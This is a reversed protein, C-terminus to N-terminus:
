KTNHVTSSPTVLAQMLSVMGGHLHFFVVSAPYFPYCIGLLDRKGFSLKPYYFISSPKPPLSTPIYPPIPPRAPILIADALVGDPKMKTWLTFSFGLNFAFIEPLVTDLPVLSTTVAESYESFVKQLLQHNTLYNCGKSHLKSIIQHPFPSTIERPLASHLKAM